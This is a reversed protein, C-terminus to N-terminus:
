GICRHSALVERLWREAGQQARQRAADEAEPRPLDDRVISAVVFPSFHPDPPAVAELRVRGTVELSRLIAEVRPLLGLGGGLETALETSLWADSPRTELLALM